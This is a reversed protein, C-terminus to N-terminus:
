RARAGAAATLPATVAALVRARAVPDALFFHGGPVVDATFRAATHAGWARVSSSDLLPDDAGAFAHLAVPMPVAPGAQFSTCLALDARILALAPGAWQPYRRVVDSMGGLGILLDLLDDDSMSPVVELPPPAAPDGFAGTVLAEPLPAGRSHRRRTLAFAVLAGMSHGYFVHPAELWPALEADLGAVLAAMDEPYEDHLRRERGPLQVPHVSVGSGVERQWGAFVSATGGAHHFCFVRPGRGPAPPPDVALSRATGTPDAGTM